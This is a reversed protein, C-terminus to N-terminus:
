QDSIYKNRQPFLYCFTFLQILNFLIFRKFDKYIVHLHRPGVIQRHLAFNEAMNTESAEYKM